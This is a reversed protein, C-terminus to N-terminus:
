ISYTPLTYNQSYDSRISLSQLVMQLHPLPQKKHALDTMLSCCQYKHIQLDLVYQNQSYIHPWQQAPSDSQFKMFSRSISKCKGRLVQPSWWNQGFGTWKYFHIGISVVFRRSADSNRASVRGQIEREKYIQNQLKQLDYLVDTCCVQRFSRKSTPHGVLTKKSYQWSTPTKSSFTVKKANKNNLLRHM